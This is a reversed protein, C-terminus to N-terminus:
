GKETEDISHNLTVQAIQNNFIVQDPYGFPSNLFQIAGEDVQINGYYCTKVSDGSSTTFIIGGTPLQEEKQQIDNRLKYLIQTESLHSRWKYLYDKGLLIQFCQKVVNKTGGTEYDPVEFDFPQIQRIFFPKNEPSTSTIDKPLVDCLNNSMLEATGTDCEDPIPIAIIANDGGKRFSLHYLNVDKLNLLGVKRTLTDHYTKHKYEDRVVDALQGGTNYSQLARLEINNYKRFVFQQDLGEPNIEGYWSQIEYKCNSPKKHGGIDFRLYAYKDCTGNQETYISTDSVNPNLIIDKGEGGTAKIIAISHDDDYHTQELLRYKLHYIDQQRLRNYLTHERLTGTDCVKMDKTYFVKGHVGFDKDKSMEKYPLLNVGYQGKITERVGNQPISNFLNQHEEVETIKDQLKKLDVSTSLKSWEGINGTDSIRRTHISGDVTCYWIQIADRDKTAISGIENYTFVNRITVAVGDRNEEYGLPFKGETKYAGHGVETARKQSYTTVFKYWNHFVNDINGMITRSYDVSFTYQDSGKLNKDM